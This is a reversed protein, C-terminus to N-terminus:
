PVMSPLPTTTVYPDPTPTATPEPTPPPTPAINWPPTLILTVPKIQDEINRDLSATLQNIRDEGMSETLWGVVVEQTLQDYPIFSGSDPNYPSVSQVGYVESSYSGTTANYRWHINYVVDLYSSQTAYAELAAIKWTYTNTDSM